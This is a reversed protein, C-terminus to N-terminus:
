CSKIYKIYFFIYYNVCTIKIKTEKQLRIMYDLISKMVKERKKWKNSKMVSSTIHKKKSYINKHM